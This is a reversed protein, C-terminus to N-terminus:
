SPGNVSLIPIVRLLLVFYLRLAHSKVGRYKASLANFQCAQSQAVQIFRIWQEELERLEVLDHLPFFALRSLFHGCVHSPHSFVFPLLFRLPFAAAAAASSAAAAAACLPM